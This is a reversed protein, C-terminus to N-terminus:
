NGKNSRTTVITKLEDALAATKAEQIVVRDGIAQVGAQLSDVRKSVQSMADDLSTFRQTNGLSLAQVRESLDGVREALAAIANKLDEQTKAEFSIETRSTADRKEQGEHLQALLLLLAIVVSLVNIISGWSISPEIKPMPMLDCM